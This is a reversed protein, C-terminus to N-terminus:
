NATPPHQNDLALVLARRARLERLDARALRAELEASLISDDQALLPDAQDHIAQLHTQEVRWRARAAEVERARRRARDKAARQQQELRLEAASLEARARRTRSPAWWSVPLEISAKVAFRAAAGAQDVVGGQLWEVWPIGRAQRRALRAQAVEVGAAARRVRPDAETSAAALAAELAAPDVPDDLPLPEEAPWVLLDRLQGEVTHAERLQDALDDDADRRDEEADLWDFTTALGEARRRACLDQGAQRAALLREAVAVSDRLLVLQHYRATVARRLSARRADLSAEDARARAESEDARTALDWPRPLPLRLAAEIEPSSGGIELDRLALRTTPSDVDIDEHWEARSAEIDLAELRLEYSQDEARELAEELTLAAAQGPLLLALIFLLRM